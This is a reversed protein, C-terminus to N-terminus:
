NMIANNQISFYKITASYHNTYLSDYAQLFSVFLGIYWQGTLLHLFALVYFVPGGIAVGWFQFWRANLRNDDSPM